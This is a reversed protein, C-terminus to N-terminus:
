ASCNSEVGAAVREGRTFGLGVAGSPGRVAVDWRGTTGTRWPGRAGAQRRGWGGRAGVTATAPHESGRGCWKM